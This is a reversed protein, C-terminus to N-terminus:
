GIPVPRSPSFLLTGGFRAGVGSGARLDADSGALFGGVGSAFRDWFRLGALRELGARLEFAIPAPADDVIEAATALADVTSSFADSSSSPMASFFFSTDATRAVWTLAAGLMGFKLTAEAVSAGGKTAVVTGSQM